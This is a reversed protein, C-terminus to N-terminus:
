GSLHRLNQLPLLGLVGITSSIFGRCAHHFYSKRLRNAFFLIAEGLAAAIHKDSQSQDLGGVGTESKRSESDFIYPTVNCRQPM